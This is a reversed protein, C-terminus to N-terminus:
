GVKEENPMDIGEDDETPVEDLENPELPTEEGPTKEPTPETPTEPEGQMDKSNNNTDEGFGKNFYCDLHCPKFDYRWSNVRGRGTNDAYVIKKCIPCYDSM